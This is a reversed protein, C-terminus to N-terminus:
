DASDRCDAVRTELDAQLAGMDTATDVIAYYFCETADDAYSSATVGVVSAGAEFIELEYGCSVAPEDPLAYTCGSGRAAAAWRLHADGFVWPGMTRTLGIRQNADDLMTVRLAVPRPFTAADDIVILSGPLWDSATADLLTRSQHEVQTRVNNSEDGGCAVCCVLILWSRM